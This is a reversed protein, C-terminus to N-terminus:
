VQLMTTAEYVDGMPRVGAVTALVSFEPTGYSTYSYQFPPPILAIKVCQHLM